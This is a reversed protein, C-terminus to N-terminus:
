EGKLVHRELKASLQIAMGELSTRVPPGARRAIKSKNFKDVSQQWASCECDSM